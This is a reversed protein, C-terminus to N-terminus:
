TYLRSPGYGYSYIKYIKKLKYTFCLLNSQFVAKICKLKVKVSDYSPPPPTGPNNKVRLYKTFNGLYGM